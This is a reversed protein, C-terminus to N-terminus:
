TLAKDTIASRILPYCPWETGPSPTPCTAGGSMAEVQPKSDVIFWTAPKLPERSSSLGQKGAGTFGLLGIFGM